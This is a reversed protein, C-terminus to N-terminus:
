TASPGGVTNNGNRFRIKYILNQKLTKIRRLKIQTKKANLKLEFRCVGERQSNALEYTTLQPQLMVSRKTLIIYNNIKM